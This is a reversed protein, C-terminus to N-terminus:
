DDAEDCNGDFIADIDEVLAEPITDWRIHDLVSQLVDKCADLEAGLAEVEKAMVEAITLYDSAPCADCPDTVTFVTPPEPTYTLSGSGCGSCGFRGCNFCMM